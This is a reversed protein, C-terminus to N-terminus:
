GRIEGHHGGGKSNRRVSLLFILLGYMHLSVFIVIASCKYLGCLWGFAGEVLFFEFSLVIGSGSNDTEAGLRGTYVTPCRGRCM